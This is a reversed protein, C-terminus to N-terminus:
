RAPRTLTRGVADRWGAILPERVKAKMSPEFRRDLSWITEFAEFGGYVGAQRGALYAAGLATTELVKPREVPLGVIDCLAQCLWDNAVM